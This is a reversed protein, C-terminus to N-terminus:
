LNKILVKSNRQLNYLQQREVPLDEITAPEFGREQFWHTTQTTLVLLKEIGQQRAEREVNSLLTDGCGAKQYDPHVALCALEGVMTEAFPYFATCAIISGDRELVTFNGIEIELKERSRRVLFGESEMPTILDLIGGVDDVSARRLRDFPDASVLTGIGDRTFLEHLLVGDVKRPILHVRKVGQRCAQCASRVQHLAEDSQESSAKRRAALWQGAEQLTLERIMQGQDDTVGDTEDLYILKAAHLEIAILMAVEEALLNFIEGTPSYGIPSVLVVDGSDLRQSIAAADVRRVEGTYLFDVGNRVGVPRATIFNGSAVRIHSGGMPSNVLGMSFRAEIEVRVSGAAEKVSALTADDTLRLGGVYHSEVDMSKLRLEIQARIGHVLVLRIGLSNLLALDHVLHAFGADVVAEGRCMVVFTQGRHANIYPSADRFWNVFDKTNM